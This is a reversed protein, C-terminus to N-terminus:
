PRWIHVSFKRTVTSTLIDPILEIDEPFPMSADFTKVIELVRTPRKLFAEVVPQYLRRLQWWAEPMHQIKIEIVVAYMPGVIIADPRCLSKGRADTFLFSPQALYQANEKKAICSLYEQVTAEYRLGNQRAISNGRGNIFGHDIMQSFTVPPCAARFGSPAPVSVVPRAEEPNSFFPLM